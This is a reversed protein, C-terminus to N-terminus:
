LGTITIGKRHQTRYFTTREDIDVNCGLIFGKESHTCHPPPLRKIGINRFVNEAGVSNSFCKPIIHHWHIKGM